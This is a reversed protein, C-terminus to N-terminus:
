SEGTWTGKSSVSCTESRCTGIYLSFARRDWQLSRHDVGSQRGFLRHICFVKNSPM